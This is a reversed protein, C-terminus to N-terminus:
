GGFILQGQLKEDRSRQWTLNTRQQNKNGVSKQRAQLKINVPVIIHNIDEEENLHLIRSSLPRM